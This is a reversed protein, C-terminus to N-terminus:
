QGGGPSGSGDSEVAEERLLQRDLSPKPLTKMFGDVRAAAIRSLIDYVERVSDDEGYVTFHIGRGSRDWASITWTASENGNGTPAKTFWGGRRVAAAIAQGYKPPIVGEWSFRDNSVDQGGAFLLVGEGNFRYRVLQQAQGEMLLQMSLGDTPSDPGGSVVWKSACGQALLAVAVLCLAVVSRNTKM